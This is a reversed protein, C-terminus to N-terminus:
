AKYPTVRQTSNSGSMAGAQRRALLEFVKTLGFLLKMERQDFSIFSGQLAESLGVEQDWKALTQSALYSQSLIRVFFEDNPVHDLSDMDDVVMNNVPEGKVQIMGIAERIGQFQRKYIEMERYAAIEEETSQESLSDIMMSELTEPSLSELANKLPQELDEPVTIQVVFDNSM